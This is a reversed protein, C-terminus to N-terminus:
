GWFLDAKSKTAVTANNFALANRRLRVYKSSPLFLYRLLDPTEEVLLSERPLYDEYWVKHDICFKPRCPDVTSGELFIKRGHLYEGNKKQLAKKAENPSVFEVIVCGLLHGRRNVILQVRVVEALHKFFNTIDSILDSIEAQPSLGAIFLKEESETKHRKLIPNTQLDDKRNRKGLLNASKKSSSAM